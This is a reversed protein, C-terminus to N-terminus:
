PRHPPEGAQIRGHEVRAACAADIGQAADLLLEPGNRASAGSVAQQAIERRLLVNTGRQGRKGRGLHQENIEALEILERM